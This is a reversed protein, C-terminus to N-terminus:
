QCGDAAPETAKTMVRRQPETPEVRQHCSNGQQTDPSVGKVRDKITPVEETVEMAPPEIAPEIDESPEYM